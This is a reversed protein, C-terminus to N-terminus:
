HPDPDQEEYLHHSDVFLPRFGELGGNQAEVDGNQSDVARVPEM